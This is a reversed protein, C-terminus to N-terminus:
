EHEYLWEIVFVDPLICCVVHINGVRGHRMEVDVHAAYCLLGSGDYRLRILITVFTTSPTERNIAKLILRSKITGYTWM